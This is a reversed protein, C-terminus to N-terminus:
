SWLIRDRNYLASTTIAMEVEMRSHSPKGVTVWWGSLKMVGVVVVVVFVGKWRWKDEEELSAYLLASASLWCRVDRLCNRVWRDTWDKM